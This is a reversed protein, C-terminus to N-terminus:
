RFQPKIGHCTFIFNFLYKCIIIPIFDILFFNINKQSVTAFLNISIIYIKMNTTKNNDFIFEFFWFGSGDNFKWPKHDGNRVGGLLRFEIKFPSIESKSMQIEMGETSIFSQPWPFKYPSMPLKLTLIEKNDNFPNGDYVYKLSKNYEITEVGLETVTRKQGFTVFPIFLLLFLIKKM